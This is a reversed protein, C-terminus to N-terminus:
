CVVDPINVAPIYGSMSVNTVLSTLWLSAFCRQKVVRQVLSEESRESHCMVFDLSISVGLWRVLQCCIRTKKGECFGAFERYQEGIRGSGREEAMSFLSWRSRCRSMRADARMQQRAVGGRVQFQQFASHQKQRVKHIRGEKGHCIRTM